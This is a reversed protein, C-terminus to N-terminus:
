TEISLIRVFNGGCGCILVQVTMVSQLPVCRLEVGLDMLLGARDGDLRRSEYERTMHSFLISAFHPPFSPFVSFFFSPLRLGSAFGKCIMNAMFALELIRLPVYPRANRARKWQRDCLMNTLKEM